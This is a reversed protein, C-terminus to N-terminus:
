KVKRTVYFCAVFVLLVVLVFDKLDLQGITNLALIFVPAMSIIAAMYYLRKESVWYRNLMKNSIKLTLVLIAFLVSLVLLYILAFVMLIGAPGVSLPSTTNLVLFLLAAALVPLGFVMYLKFTRMTQINVM